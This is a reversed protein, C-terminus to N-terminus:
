LKGFLRLGPGFRKIPWSRCLIPAIDSQHHCVACHQYLIPAVNKSFTVEKQASSQGAAIMGKGPIMVALLILMLKRFKMNIEGTFYDRVFSQGKPCGHRPELESPVRLQGLIL